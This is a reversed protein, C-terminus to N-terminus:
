RQHQQMGLQRILLLMRHRYFRSYETCFFPPAYVLEPQGPHLLPGVRVPCVPNVSNSVFGSMRHAATFLIACAPRLQACIVDSGRIRHLTRIARVRLIRIFRPMLLQLSTHRHAHQHRRISTCPLYSNHSPQPQSQILTRHFFHPRPSKLRRAVRVFIRDCLPHRHFRRVPQKSTLRAVITKAAIATPAAQKGESTPWSLAARSSPEIRCCCNRYGRTRVALWSFSAATRFITSAFPNAYGGRAIKNRANLFSPTSSSQPLSDSALGYTSSFDYPIQAVDPAKPGFRRNPSKSQNLGCLLKRRLMCM